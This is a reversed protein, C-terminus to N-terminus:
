TDSARCSDLIARIRALAKGRHSIRNKRELPMEAVTKREEPVYFVPDYGFGGTGIAEETITGEFTEQVVYFRDENLMLVMCCVFMATRDVVGDLNNLLLEYRHRDNM